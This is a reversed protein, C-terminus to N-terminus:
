EMAEEVSALDALLYLSGTVLLYGSSGTLIRGRALARAPNEVIEVREFWREACAALERAPLARPSSSGTAVLTGARSSLTELMSAADKDALISCVITWSGEPLRSVLWAVGAPNHAGDRLEREGRWELRGPLAIQPSDARLPRGLLVEVAERPLEDESAVAVSGAGAERALPEWESEGLVVSAGPAVVALKERAIAERTTGLWRTHELAVNTLVVVESAIVNTADHRGGLGAEVAAVEVGAVAFESFAASTIVEFQTAGLREAAPRVRGLARELDADRGNVTIRESWRRIHPSITAGTRVGEAELLAEIRKVATTKGNTGVVHISRFTREPHGLESLLERM